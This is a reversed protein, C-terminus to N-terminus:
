ISLFLEQASAANHSQGKMAREPQGEGFDVLFIRMLGERNVMGPEAIGGASVDFDLNAHTTRPFSGSNSVSQQPIIRCRLVLGKFSKITQHHRLAMRKPSQGSDILSHNVCDAAIMKLASPDQSPARDM